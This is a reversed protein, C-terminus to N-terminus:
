LNVFSQELHHGEIKLGELWLSDFVELQKEHAKSQIGNDHERGNQASM